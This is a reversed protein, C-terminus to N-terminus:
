SLEKDCQISVEVRPMGTTQPMGRPPHFGPSMWPVGGSVRARSRGSAPRSCGAPIQGGVHWRGAPYTPGAQPGAETIGRWWGARPM